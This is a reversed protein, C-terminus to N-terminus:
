KKVIFFRFFIFAILIGISNALIDYYEAIRYNTLVSQLVEIIIGYVFCCFVVIYNVAKKRFSILWFFTLMFYAIGHEIKDIGSFSIPM